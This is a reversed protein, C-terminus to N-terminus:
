WVVHIISQFFMFSIQLWKYSEFRKCFACACPIYYKGNIYSNQIYVIPSITHIQRTILTCHCLMYQVNIQKFQTAQVITSFCCWPLHNDVAIRSAIRNSMYSSYIIYSSIRTTPTSFFYFSYFGPWYHQGYWVSAETVVWNSLKLGNPHQM